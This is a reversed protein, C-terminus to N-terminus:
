RLSRVGTFLLFLAFLARLERDPLTSAIYSGIPSGLMAGGVLGAAVRMRVRGMQVHTAAQIVQPVALAMLSTAIATKQDFVHGAFLVNDSGLSLATTMLTGAGSLCCMSYALRCWTFCICIFIFVNFTQPKGFGTVGSALGVLSGIGLFYAIGSPKMTIGTLNAFRNYFHNTTTTHVVATQTTSPSLHQPQNKKKYEVLFPKLTTLPAMAILGGAFIRKLAKDTLRRSLLVGVPSLFSAGAAAILAVQGVVADRDYVAATTAGFICTSANLPSVTSQAELQGLAGFRKSTLFPIAILGGGIGLSAGIFSAGAGIVFGHRFM